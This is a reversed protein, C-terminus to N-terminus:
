RALHIKQCRMALPIVLLGDSYRASTARWLHFIHNRMALPILSLHDVQIMSMKPNTRVVKYILVKPLKKCCRPRRLPGWGSDM